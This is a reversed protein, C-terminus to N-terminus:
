GDCPLGSRPRRGASPLPELAAATMEVDDRCRALKRAAIVRRASRLASRPPEPKSFSIMRGRGAAASQRRPKHWVAGTRGPKARLHMRCAGNPSLRGQLLSLARLRRLSGGGAAGAAPLAGRNRRGAPRGGDPPKRYQGALLGPKRCVTHLSIARWDARHGSVTRLLGYIHLCAWRRQGSLQVPHQAHVHNYKRLHKQYYAFAQRFFAKHQEEPLAFAATGGNAASVVHTAFPLGQGAFFDFIEAASGATRGTVTAIVGVALGSRRALRIGAMTRDFYGDGRQPDNLHKPGDLSAGISVNYKAFLACLREDLLWLNSQVSLRLRKGALARYLEAILAELVPYGAALPEGGHLTVRIDAQETEEAIRRIFDVTRAADQRRIAPRTNPGFCYACAAPCSLSPIIMFHPAFPRNPDGNICIM